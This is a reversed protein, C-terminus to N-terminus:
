DNKDVPNLSSDAKEPAPLDEGDTLVSAAPTTDDTATDDSAADAPAPAPEASADPETPDAAMERARLDAPSIVTPPAEAPPAEAAPADAPPTDAPKEMVPVEGGAMVLLEAALRDRRELEVARTLPAIAAKKHGLYLYHYGRLFHSFPFM